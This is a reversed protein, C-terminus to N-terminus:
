DIEEFDIYEGVKKSTKRKKSANRIVTTRGENESPQGSNQYSNFQQGFREETKKVAFSLLQPGLWRWLLKLGYYVILLILITELLVM